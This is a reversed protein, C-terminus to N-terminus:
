EHRTVHLSVGKLGREAVGLTHYAIL